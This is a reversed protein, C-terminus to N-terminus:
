RRRRLIPRRPAPRAAGAAAAAAAFHQQAQSPPTNPAADVAAVPSPWRQRRPSGQRCCGAVVPPRAGPSLRAAGADARPEVDRRARAVPRPRWPPGCRGCIRWWRACATITPSGRRSIRSRRRGADRRCLSRDAPLRRGRPRRRSGATRRPHLPRSRRPRGDDGQGTRSGREFGLRRALRERACQRLNIVQLRTVHLLTAITHDDHPLGPVLAQLRARDMELAAAIKAWPAVGHCADAFCTRARRGRSTSCCRWASACPSVASRAAVRARPVAASSRREALPGEAAIGAPALPTMMERSAAIAADVPTDVIGLADAALTM